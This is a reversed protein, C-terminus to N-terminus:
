PNDHDQPLNKLDAQDQPRNAASKMKRLWALSVFRRADHEIATAFLEDLEAEPLGPVYDFIDLFGYDTALMMLHKTRIYEITVPHLKEIGTTPDIEDGIWCANVESLAAFLSSESEPTRLFIIDTDETARVYGHFAVAHGGIIAFPVDYRSLVDILRFPDGSDM